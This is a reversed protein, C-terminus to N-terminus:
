HGSKILLVLFFGLLLLGWITGGLKTSRAENSGDLEIKPAPEPLLQGCSSCHVPRVPAIGRATYNM